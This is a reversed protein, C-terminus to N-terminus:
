LVPGAQRVADSVQATYNAFNAQFLGALKRAQADYEAPNKWTNRPRLLDRPVGPFADPVLVGFVPDSTSNVAGLDGRLAAGVMARTVGLKIRQGVGYPGGTWGTNVLWIQSGHKLLRQHLLEAYRAPHLPLFPAAFCTSFVTQPETVGTETGAVKATYGSLFHYLAQEHTLRSIPPLVGFADCTLFLINAPHGGMGSSECNDIFDVPYAARTNETYREDDFDPQRTLPDVVVNELICGFRIANWIQPEGEQSLRITKAYCGGEINFIGRDSWGHEDDGILRREPDASLTTKGTGSLGFFLATDGASDTNASCHMPFVGQQPLLYNLMGFVSKKIEGAYHTGGIVVLRRQLNLLIFTETRTGDTAADALLGPAVLITVQPQFGGPLTRLDDPTSRLLLCRAFLAHWAKETIIRVALRYAPDACAWLDSVFLDRGQFYALVKDLLRNFVAGEIPRNSSGWWIEGKKDAEAIVFRDQPSRGTRKGTYAVFAGTQVFLGEGRLVALEALQASSLNAHVTGPNIIGHSRLDIIPPPAAISPAIREQAPPAAM